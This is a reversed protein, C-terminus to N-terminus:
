RFYSYKDKKKLYDENYLSNTIVNNDVYNVELKNNTNFTYISDKINLGLVKSSSTGEFDSTVKKITFDEKKLYSSCKIKMFEQYAYYSAFSTWHHDTKYYMKENNNHSKLIDTMDINTTYILKKYLNDLEKDEEIELHYYLKEENIIISDPVFMVYVDKNKAFENITEYIYHSKSNNIFNPILYDDKAIYTENIYTKGSLIELINKYSLLNKRFPFHDSIYEDMNLINFKKLYRNELYSYYDKKSILFIIDLLLIIIFIFIFITKNISKM